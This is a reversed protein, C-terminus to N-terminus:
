EQLISKFLAWESDSLSRIPEVETLIPEGLVAEHRKIGAQVVYDERNGNGDWIEFKTTLITVKRIYFRNAQKAM